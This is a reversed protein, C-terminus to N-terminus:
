TGSACGNWHCQTLSMNYVLYIRYRTIAVLSFYRIHVDMILTENM